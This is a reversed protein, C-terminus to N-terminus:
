EVIDELIAGTARAQDRVDRDMKAGRLDVLYFDVKDARVGRLDAECLNAKRIEEPRKFTMDEYDDSYFGTKSGECPYPSNVLGSRSSGMHFTSNRLDAGRLDAGEWDIEALGAGSLKAGRLDAGPLCSGTLHAGALNARQLKAKAIHLDELQANKLLAEEMDADNLTVRRLDVGSLDTQRLISGSMDTDELIADLLRAKSVNACQLNASTFNAQTLDCSVLRCETMTAASFDVRCLASEMLDAKSLDARQFTAGAARVGFMEARTLRAGDFNAREMSAHTFNAAELDAQIFVCFDLVGKRLNVKPWRANRFLGHQLRWPKSRELLRWSADAALLVSAAMAHAEEARRSELLKVLRDIAQPADECRRGVLKILKWPLRHVLDGFYGNSILSKLREAALPLQVMDHRLLKRAAQPIDAKALKKSATAILTEDWGFMALAYQSATQKQSPTPLQEDLHQLLADVPGNLSRDAAFRDLVIAAVQPLWQYRASTGLREIVSGCADHHEVLLYEILEDIGWPQLALELNRGDGSTMAAVVMVDSSCKALQQPTPEDLFQIQDNYSFAAALHALAISKGSGPGGTLRVFGSGFEEFIEGVIEDLLRSEGTRKAIVRPRVIAFAPTATTM